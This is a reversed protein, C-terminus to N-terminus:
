AGDLNFATAKLKDSLDLLAAKLTNIEEPKLCVKKGRVRNEHLRQSLWGRSKGFYTKSIESLSIYPSVSQLQRLIVLNKYEEVANVGAQIAMAAREARETETLSAFETEKIQMFAKKSETTKLKQYELFERRMNEAPFIKDIIEEKM